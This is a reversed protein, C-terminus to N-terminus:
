ERVQAEDSKEFPTGEHPNFVILNIMCYTNALLTLLRHADDDTDNVDRLLCYEIIVFDDSAPKSRKSSKKSSSTTTTTTTTSSSNTM